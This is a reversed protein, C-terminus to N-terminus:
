EMLTSPLKSATLLDAADAFFQPQPRLLFMVTSM